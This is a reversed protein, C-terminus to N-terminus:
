ALRTEALGREDVSKEGGLQGRRLVVAAAVVLLEVLQRLHVDDLGLQLLLLELRLQGHDVAGTEAVVDVVAVGPGGNDVEDVVLMLCVHALLLLGLAVVLDVQPHVGAQVKDPGGAVRVDEKVQGRRWARESPGAAQLRKIDLDHLAEARTHVQDGDDGLRVRKGLVVQRDVLLADALDHGRLADADVRRGDIGIVLSRRLM